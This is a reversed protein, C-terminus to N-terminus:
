KIVTECVINDRESNDHCWIGFFYYQLLNQSLIVQDKWKKEVLATCILIIRKYIFKGRSGQVQLALCIALFILGTKLHM